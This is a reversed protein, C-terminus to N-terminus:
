RRRALLAEVGYGVIWGLTGGIVGAEYGGPVKGNTVVNLVVFVLAGAVAGLGQIPIPRRAPAASPAPEPVESVPAETAPPPSQRQDRSPRSAQTPRRSMARPEHQKAGVM